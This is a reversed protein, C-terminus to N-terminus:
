CDTLGFLPLLFLVFCGSWFGELVAWLVGPTTKLLVNAITLIRVLTPCTDISEFWVPLCHPAGVSTEISQVLLEQVLQVSWTAMTLISVM